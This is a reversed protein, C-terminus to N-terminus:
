YLFDIKLLGCQERMTYDIASSYIYDKSTRVFGAKVPNNHVYFVRQAIFELSFIEIPHNEQQWFQYKENRKNGEGRQGFINLMWSKRSEGKHDEIATVIKRSTFRKFDRLIDSLNNEKASLILHVHNSMICWCHVLLGKNEQCYRLSDVVIDCYCRRTFVDVWEVVSFTIFHVASQNRIKYGGEGM